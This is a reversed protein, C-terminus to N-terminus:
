KIIVKKGRRIYLGPTAPEAELRQGGLTYWADDDAAGGTLTAVADTDPTITIGYIFLADDGVEPARRGRVLNGSGVAYIYIYTEEPVNYSVYTQWRANESAYTPTGGLGIRVALQLKTGFVSADIAITGKGPGVKLIIGNFNDRVADSGPEGSGVQTMDTTNGIVLGAAIYGCGRSEPLNYYINSITNDTLDDDKLAAIDVDTQKTIPEIKDGLDGAFTVNLFSFGNQWAELDDAKVHFLTMRDPKFSTAENIGSAWSLNAPNAYCYVDLINTSSKFVDSGISGAGAGITVSMLQSCGAFASKEILKVGDPITVSKLYSSYFANNGIKELGAPLHIAERRSYKFAYPAITTVDDPVETSSGGVILTHTQKDIVGYGEGSYVPNAEDVYFYEVSFMGSLAESAISTLSAPIYVKKVFNLSSFAEADITTLGDPLRLTSLFSINNFARKGVSKLHCPLEDTFTCNWLRAFANDGVHTLGDPLEIRTINSRYDFWPVRADTGSWEDDFDYMAGTGTIVLKMAPIEENTEFDYTYDNDIVQLAFELNDGCKGSPLETQKEQEYISISHIYIPSEGDIFLNINANQYVLDGPLHIVYDKFDDAPRASSHTEAKLEGQDVIGSHINYINGAARLVIKSIQGSYSFRNVMSLNVNGSFGYFVLCSTGEAGGSGITTFEVQADSACGAFWNNDELSHMTGQKDQPSSGQEQWEDFTSVVSASEDDSMVLTIGKVVFPQPTFVHFEIPGGGIRVPPNLTLEFDRFDGDTTYTQEIKRGDPFLYQLMQINGAGHLVIQKVHGNVEFGSTLTLHKVSSNGGSFNFRLADEGWYSYSGLEIETGADYVSLKWYRDHDESVLTHSSPDWDTFFSEIVNEDDPEPEGPLGDVFTVNVDPFKQVYRDFYADLVHFKTRRDSQFWDIDYYKSYAISLKKPNAFCYVDTIGTCGTFAYAGIKQVTKPITVSKISTLFCFAMEGIATVEYTEGDLVFNELIVADAAISNKHTYVQPRIDSEYPSGSAVKATGTGPYYQYAIGYQSDLYYYTDAWTVLPQCAALLVLLLLRSHKM